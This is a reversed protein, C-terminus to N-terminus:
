YVGTPIDLRSPAGAARAAGRWWATLRRVVDWATARPVATLAVVAVQRVGDPGEVTLSGLHQGARVPAEAASTLRLRRAWQAKEGRPLAFAVDHAPGVAVWAARGGRVAVQALPQGARAAYVARYHAFGWNLLSAATEFRARSTPAGMVVAVLRLGDRRATATLCFGAAATYGTKLGDVGPVQGLLRNTNVLWLHGGRGDRLSRDERRSTLRVLEPMGAAYAGLRAMDLATTRTAQGPGDLGSANVFHTARMGLRAAMANMEAVFATESGALHEAIAVAADNASGVAVATLLQGFPLVEGPELWIQSGGTRYAEDSAAVLDGWRVRGSRLAQVALVLTMIKTMSAPPRVVDGGHQFLVRGSAADALVASPAAIAPPAPPTEAARATAGGWALSAALCAGAAACRGATWRGGLM